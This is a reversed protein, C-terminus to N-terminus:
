GDTEGLINVQQTDAAARVGIVDTNSVGLTTSQGPQLVAAQTSESGVYVNATNDPDAQVVVDVGDPIANSSLTSAATGVTESFSVLGDENFLAAVNISERPDPSFFFGRTDLSLQAARSEESPVHAYIQEREGPVKLPGRDGKNVKRQESRAADASKGLYASNGAVTLYLDSDRLSAPVLVEVDGPEVVTTLRESM